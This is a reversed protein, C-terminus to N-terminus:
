QIWVQGTYRHERQIGTDVSTKHVMCHERQIGTDVSTKHVLTGRFEQIWMLRTYWHERQIVTDMSTM